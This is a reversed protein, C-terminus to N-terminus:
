RSVYEFEKTSVLHGNPKYTYQCKRTGDANYEYKRIRRVQDKDDYEVERTCSRSKGDYEYVIRYQQGYSAYEIEETKRGLADYTTQHDLHRAKAKSGAKQKWEKVITSKPTPTAAKAPQTQGLAATGCCLMALSLLLTTKSM